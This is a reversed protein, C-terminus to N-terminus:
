EPSCSKAEDEFSVELNAQSDDDAKHRHLPVATAKRDEVVVNEGKQEKSSAYGQGQVDHEEVGPVDILHTVFLERM